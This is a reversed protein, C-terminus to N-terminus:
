NILKLGIKNLPTGKIYRKNFYDTLTHPDLKDPLGYATYFLAPEIFVVQYPKDYSYLTIEKGTLVKLKDKVPVAYAQKFKNIYKIKKM